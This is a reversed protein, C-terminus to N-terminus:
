SQERERHEGRTPRCVAARRRTAGLWPSHTPATVSEWWSYPGSQTHTIMFEYSKIGKTAIARVRLGGSGYGANYGSSYYHGPYGGFTDSPLAGRLRRFGYGCLPTSSALGGTWERASSRRMGRGGDSSFPAAGTASEPNRCRNASNPQVMSCPLYDLHFRRRDDATLTRNPALFATTNTGAWTAEGTAPRTALYGYAALGMLAEYDDVTWLGNSDVDNTIGIIGGPGTRDAAIRHM